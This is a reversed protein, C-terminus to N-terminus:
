ANEESSLVEGKITELESFQNKDRRHPSKISDVYSEDRSNCRSRTTGGNKSNGARSPGRASARSGRRGDHLSKNHQLLSANMLRPNPTNFITRNERWRAKSFLRLVVCIIIFMLAMGALIGIMAPDVRHPNEKPEKPLSQCEVIGESNAVPIKDFRCLCRGDRCETQFVTQECQENFTCTDNVSAAKGCKDLHNTVPLEPVCQCLKLIADCISGEFDCESTEDCKDGFKLGSGGGKLGKVSIATVLVPYYLGVKFPNILSLIHMIVIAMSIELFGKM